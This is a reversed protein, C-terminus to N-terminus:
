ASRREYASRALERLMLEKSKIEEKTLRLRYAGWNYELTEIRAQEIRADLEPSQPLKLEFEIQSKKPKFTVFNYPRGDKSLGIYAKNFRLELRPDFEKM